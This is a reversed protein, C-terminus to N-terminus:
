TMRAVAIQVAALITAHLLQLALIYIYFLTHTHRYVLSAGFSHLPSTECALGRALGKTEM